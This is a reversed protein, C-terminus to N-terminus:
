QDDPTVLETIRELAFRLQEYLEDGFEEVFHKEQDVIYRYGGAVLELGAPTYTVLKARRDDPDPRMELVGLGVLDRIIEGMSQRTMGAREAMDSARAGGEGLNGFVANHAQKVQPYGREHAQRVMNAQMARNARDVLRILPPRDPFPIPSSM